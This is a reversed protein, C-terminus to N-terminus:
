LAVVAGCQSDMVSMQPIDTALRINLLGKTAVYASSTTLFCCGENRFSLVYLYTLRILSEGAEHIVARNAM